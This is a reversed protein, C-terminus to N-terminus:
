AAKSLQLVVVEDMLVGPVEFKINKNSDILRNTTSILAPGTPLTTIGPTLKYMKIDVSTEYALQPIDRVSLLEVEFTGNSWDNVVVANPSTIGFMVGADTGEVTASGGFGSTAGLVPVSQDNFSITNGYTVIKEAFVRHGLARQRYLNMFYAARPQATGFDTPNGLNQDGGDILGGLTPKDAYPSWAALAGHNAGGRELADFLAFQWAPNIATSAAGLEMVNVERVGLGQGPYAEPMRYEELVEKISWRLGHPDGGFAGTGMPKELWHFDYSHLELGRVRLETSLQQGFSVKNEVDLSPDQANYSVTSPGTFRVDPGLISRYIATMRGAMQVFLSNNGRWFSGPSKGPENWYEFRIKKLDVRGADVEGKWWNADATWKAETYAWNTYPEPYTNTTSPAYWQIDWADAAIWQFVCGLAVAEAYDARIQSRLIGPKLYKLRDLNAKPYWLRMAKDPFSHPHLIGFVNNTVIPRGFDIVVRQKTGAAVPM